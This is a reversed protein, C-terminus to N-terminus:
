KFRKVPMIPILKQHKLKLMECEKRFLREYYAGASLRGGVRVSRAVEQDEGMTVRELEKGSILRGLAGYIVADAVALEGDDEIDSTGTIAAAYKVRVVNDTSFFGTPFRLGTGSAVLGTPLNKEFIVQRNNRGDGYIGLSADDSGHQQVVNILALADALDYWITGLEPSPTITDDVAKWAYPWLRRVASALCKNINDYTYQPDRWVQGSAQTAATTGNWGRVCTLDNSSISKVLFQEGNNQFEGIAGEEWDNGDTVAVVSSSSAASGTTVFPREDLYTRVRTILDTTSVAMLRDEEV